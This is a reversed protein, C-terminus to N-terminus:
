TVVSLKSTNGNGLEEGSNDIVVRSEAVRLKVELKKKLNQIYILGIYLYACYKEKYIQTTECLIM